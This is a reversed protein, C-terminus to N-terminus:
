KIPALLVDVLQGTDQQSFGLLSGLVLFRICIKIKQTM